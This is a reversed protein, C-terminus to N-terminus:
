DEEEEEEAAGILREWREAIEILRRRADSDTAAAALRRAQDANRRYEDLNGIVM